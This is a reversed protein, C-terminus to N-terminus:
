DKFLAKLAALQDPNKDTGAENGGEFDSFVFFECFNAKEKEVAREASPERCAGASAPEYFACNLCVKLSAGCSDCAESRGPRAESVVPRKCSFCRKM